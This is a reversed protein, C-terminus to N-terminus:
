LETDSWEDGTAPVALEVERFGTSLGDSNAVEVEVIQPEGGTQIDDICLTVTTAQIDIVTVSFRNDIILSESKSRWLSFM